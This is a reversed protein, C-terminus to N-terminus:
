MAEKELARYDVKGRSTRPLEDRFEIIEPVMYGPLKVRCKDLIAQKISESKEIGEKLVVMAQPYNIRKEDPIGIVCCLEVASDLYLAKEIRDPFIKTTQGDEGKTMIIRKIRGTVRIVGDENIYGLDGTRMWRRGDDHINILKDTAESNNYYGLMLTPGCICIEGEEGYQKEVGTETDITKFLMKPLPIGVSEMDNVNDFTASAASTVETMGLGKKLAYKCGCRKLTDNITTEVEDTMGEGGYVVYKLSSLDYKEIHSIKPIVECYAPVTNVHNVRYKKVYDAFKYPEYKPLLVLKMGFVLPELMSNTLCYNVFPPLVAMMCEQRVPGMTKGVQWIEANISYNSIMCGKPEGTTGGTHSIIAMEYCDKKVPAVPIDHGKRIFDKWSIFMSDLRIKKKSLNYAAKLALPLSDSPSAVIVQEVSTKDIDGAITPYAGDFIIAVRSKVENLYNMTEEKGALPHIMNAVAGIKNLAYVCYLAEPISPLAVTVIENEKVGAKLFAAAARDINEFLEGYTIKRGMYIIAIDEPFDKNNEYMYEFITCEPLKANIAEESYYKLWPKDISPYGTLEGIQRDLM